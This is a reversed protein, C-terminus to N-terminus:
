PSLDCLVLVAEGNLEQRLEDLRVPELLDEPMERELAMTGVLQILHKSGHFFTCAGSEDGRNRSELSHHAAVILKVDALQRADDIRVRHSVLRRERRAHLVKVKPMQVGSCLTNMKTRAEKEGLGHVLGGVRERESTQWAASRVKHAFCCSLQRRKFIV